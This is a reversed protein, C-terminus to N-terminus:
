LMLLFFVRLGCFVGDWGMGLSGERAITKKRKERKQLEMEPSDTSWVGVERQAIAGKKVRTSVHLYAHVHTYKHISIITNINAYKSIHTYVYIYVHTYLCIHLCM